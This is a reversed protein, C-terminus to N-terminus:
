TGSSSTGVTKFLSFAGVEIADRNMAVNETQSPHISKRVGCPTM